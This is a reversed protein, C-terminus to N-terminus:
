LNISSEKILDFVKFAIIFSLIATCSSGIAGFVALANFPLCASMIGLVEGIVNDFVLVTILDIIANLAVFFASAAAISLALKIGFVIMDGM